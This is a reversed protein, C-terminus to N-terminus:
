SKHDAVDISGATLSLQTVQGVAAPLSQFDCNNGFAATPAPGVFGIKGGTGVGGKTAVILISTSSPPLPPKNGVLPYLFSVTDGKVVACTVPGQPAILASSGFNGAAQFYGSVDHPDQGDACVTFTFTALPFAGDGTARGADCNSQHGWSSSSPHASASGAMMLALMTVTAAIIAATRGTARKM